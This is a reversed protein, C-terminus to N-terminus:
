DRPTAPLPVPFCAGGTFTHAAKDHRDLSAGAGHASDQM